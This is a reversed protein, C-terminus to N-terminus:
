VYTSPLPLNKNTQKKIQKLGEGGKRQHSGGGKITVSEEQAQWRPSGKPECNLDAHMAQM